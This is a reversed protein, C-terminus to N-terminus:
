SINGLPFLPWVALSRFRLQPQSTHRLSQWHSTSPLTTPAPVIRCCNGGVRGQSRPPPTTRYEVAVTHLPTHPPMNCAEKAHTYRNNYSRAHLQIYPIHTQKQAIIRAQYMNSTQSPKM